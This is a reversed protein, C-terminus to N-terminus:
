ILKSIKKGQPPTTTQIFITGLLKMEPGLNTCQKLLILLHPRTLPPTAKDSSTHVAPPIEPKLIGLDIGPGLEGGRSAGGM